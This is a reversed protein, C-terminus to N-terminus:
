AAATSALAALSIDCLGGAGMALFTILRIRGRGPARDSFDLIQRVGYAAAIAIVGPTHSISVNEPLPTARLCLALVMASLGAAASLIVIGDLVHLRLPYGGRGWWFVGKAMYAGFFLMLLRIGGFMGDPRERILLALALSVSLFLLGLATNYRLSKVPDLPRMSFLTSLQGFEFLSRIRAFM